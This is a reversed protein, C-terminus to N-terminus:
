KRREFVGKFLDIQHKLRQRINGEGSILQGSYINKWLFSILMLAICMWIFEVCLFIFSKVWPEIEVGKLLVGVQYINIIIIILSSILIFFSFFTCFINKIRSEDEKGELFRKLLIYFFSFLFGLMFISELVGIIEVLM